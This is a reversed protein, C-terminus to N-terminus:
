SIRPALDPFLPMSSREGGDQRPGAVIRSGFPCPGPVFQAPAFLADVVRSNGALGRGYLGTPGCM